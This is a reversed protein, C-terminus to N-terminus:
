NGCATYAVIEDLNLRGFADDIVAHAAEVAYGRGLLPPRSAVGIRRRAYIRDPAAGLERRHRWDSGARGTARGGMPLFWIPRLASANTRDLRQQCCPEPAAAM